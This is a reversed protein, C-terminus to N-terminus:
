FINNYSQWCLRRENASVAAVAKYLLEYKITSALYLVRTHSFDSTLFGLDIKLQSAAKIFTM